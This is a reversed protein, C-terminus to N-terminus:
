GSKLHLPLQESRAQARHCSSWQSGCDSCFFIVVVLGGRTM